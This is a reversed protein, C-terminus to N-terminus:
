QAWFPGTAFADASSQPPVNASNSIRESSPYMLRMPRTASQATLALPIGSPYGTRTFEIYSEIANIGNLAIWKHRMIVELDQEFTNGAFGLFLSSSTSPDYGTAIVDNMGYFSFSAQLGSFWADYAAGSIKGRLRAEAQLFQSEANTMIYGDQASKIVLGSGIASLESPSNDGDAGQEHGVWGNNDTEEYIFDRRPDSVSGPEMGSLYDVAYKSGRYFNYSNSTSEDTAFMLRYFPNQQAAEGNSYGPNIAMNSSLFNEGDIKLFEADLYTALEADGGNDYAKTSQRLLIRLKLTNAYIVWSSMIGGNVVDEGGVAFTDAPANNIMEIAADLQVIFDKYIVADDDYAPTLNEIGLHAETYPIDGYLDVLYQFYHVKMIKAIAKHNSYGPRADDIISQFNATTLYLNDFIDSYFNNDIALTFEESFGGTFSNVNAGWNNMMVNGLINMRRAQTSYSSTLAGALMLDPSVDAASPNNPDDNIDLYDSCSVTIAMIFLFILKFNTKM